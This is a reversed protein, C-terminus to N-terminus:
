SGKLVTPDSVVVSGWHSAFIRASSPVGSISTPSFLDSQLPSGLQGFLNFGFSYVSGNSSLALSHRSGAKIDIIDDLGEILTPFPCATSVGHGLQGSQGWGTSYVKGEDSLFLSHLQGAAM